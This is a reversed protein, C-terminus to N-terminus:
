PTAGGTRHKVILQSLFSNTIHDLEKATEPTIYMAQRTSNAGAWVAYERSSGFTVSATDAGIDYKLVTKDGGRTIDEAFAGSLRLIDKPHNSLTKTASKLYADSLAAWAPHGAGGNKGAAHANFIAPQAKTRYYELWQELLPRLNELDQGVAQLFDRTLRANFSTEISIM